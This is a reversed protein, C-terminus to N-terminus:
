VNLIGYFVDNFSVARYRKSTPKQSSVTSENQSCNVGVWDAAHTNLGFTKTYLEGEFASNRIRSTHARTITGSTTPSHRFGGAFVSNEINTASDNSPNFTVLANFNCNARCNFKSGNLVTGSKLTVDASEFMASTVNLLNEATNGGINTKGTFVVSRDYGSITSLNCNTIDGDHIYNNNLYGQSAVTSLLGSKFNYFHNDVAYNEFWVYNADSTIRMTGVDTAGTECKMNDRFKYDGCSPNANVGSGGWGSGRVSNVKTDYAGHFYFGHKGSVDPTLSQDKYVRVSGIKSRCASFTPRSGTADLESGVFVGLSQWNAIESDYMNAVYVGIPSAKKVGLHDYLDSYCEAKLSGIVSDKFCTVNISNISIVEATGTFQSSATINGCTITAALDDPEFYNMNSTSTNGGLRISFNEGGEIDGSIIIKKTSDSPIIRLLGNTFKAGPQIGIFISNTINLVKGGLNYTKDKLFCVSGYQLAALIGDYQDEEPVGSAGFYAASRFQKTVENLYEIRNLLAQAPINAVGSPGGLVRDTQEIQYVDDWSPNPVLNAM